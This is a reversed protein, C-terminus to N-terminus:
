YGEWDHSDDEPRKRFIILVAILSGLILPAWRILFELEQEM